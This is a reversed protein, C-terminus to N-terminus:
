PATAIWPRALERVQDWDGLDFAAQLEIAADIQDEPITLYSDDVLSDISAFGTPEDLNARQDEPVLTGIICPAAYHCRGAHPECQNLHEQTLQRLDIQISMPPSREIASM